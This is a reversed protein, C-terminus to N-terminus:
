KRGEETGETIEGEGRLSMKLSQMVVDKVSEYRCIIGGGVKHCRYSVKHVALEVVKAM